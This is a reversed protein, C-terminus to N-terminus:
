LMQRRDRIILKFYASFVSIFRKVVSDKYMQPSGHLVATTAALRGLLPRVALAAFSFAFQTSTTCPPSSVPSSDVKVADGLAPQKLSHTPAGPLVRVQSGRSLLCIRANRLKTPM